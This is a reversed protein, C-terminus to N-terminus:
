WRGLLVAGSGSPVLAVGGGGGLALVTAGAAALALGAGLGVWAFLHHGDRADSLEAHRNVDKAELGNAEDAASAAEALQWAGLGLGVAGVGVLAWGTPTTWGGAATATPPAADGRLEVHAANSQGAAVSLQVTRSAEGAQVRLVHTGPPLRLRVPTVGMEVARENLYVQAGPPASTIVVEPQKDAALRELTGVLVEVDQRDTAEPALELYRRYQAM